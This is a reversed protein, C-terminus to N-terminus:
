SDLDNYPNDDKPKEISLKARDSPNMGFQGLMSQLRGMKGAAFGARDDRFEALLCAALEVALRDAETLVGVPSYSVIENWCAIEGSTLSEPVAGLPNKVEPEGDRRREPHKRFSGRADLIRTPTKPRAM